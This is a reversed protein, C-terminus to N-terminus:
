NVMFARHRNATVVLGTKTGVSVGADIQWHSNMRLAASAALGVAGGAQGLGRRIAFRRNREVYPAQLAASLAASENIRDDLRDVERDLRGELTTIRTEHNNLM